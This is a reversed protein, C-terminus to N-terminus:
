RPCFQQLKFVRGYVELDGRELLENYNEMENWVAHVRSKFDYNIINLFWVNCKFFTCAKTCTIDTNCVRNGLCHQVLQRVLLLLEMSCLGQSASLQETPWSIQQRTHCGFTLQRTTMTLTSEMTDLTRPNLGPRPRHVKLSSLLGCCSKRRLPLLATSGMDYSKVAHSCHIGLTFLSVEFTLNM